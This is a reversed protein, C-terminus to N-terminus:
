LNEIVEHTSASNLRRGDCCFTSLFRNPFFVFLAQSCAWSIDALTLVDRAFEARRRCVDFSSLVFSKEYTRIRYHTNSVDYMCVYMCINIFSFLRRKYAHARAPLLWFAM